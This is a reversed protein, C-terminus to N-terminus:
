KRDETRDDRIYDFTSPVHTAWPTRNRPLLGGTVVVAGPASKISNFFSATLPTKGSASFSRGLLNGESDTFEVMVRYDTLPLALDRGGAGGSPAAYRDLLQPPIFMQALHRKGDLRVSWFVTRGEFLGYAGGTRRQHEMPFAVCVRMTVDDLWRGPVAQITKANDANKPSSGGKSAVGPLFSVSVALWRKNVFSVNGSAYGGASGGSRTIVPTQEFTTRIRIAGFQIGASAAGALLPCLVALAFAATRTIPGM